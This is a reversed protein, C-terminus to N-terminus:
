KFQVCTMMIYENGIILVDAVSKGLCLLFQICLVKKSMCGVETYSFHPNDIFHYFFIVSTDSKADEDM